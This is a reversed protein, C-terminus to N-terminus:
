KVQHKWASIEDNNGDLFSSTVKLKRVIGPWMADDLTGRGILYHINVCERQGIRHV